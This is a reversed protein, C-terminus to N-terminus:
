KSISISIILFFDYKNIKDSHKIFFVVLHNGKEADKVCLNFDEYHKIKYKSFLKIEKIIQFFTKNNFISISFNNM